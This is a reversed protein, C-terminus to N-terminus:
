TLHALMKRLPEPVLQYNPACLYIQGPELAIKRDIRLGLAPDIVHEPLVAIGLGAAVLKQIALLSSVKIFRKPQRKSLRSLYSTRESSIWPYEHLKKHDVPFSSILRYKEEFLKRSSVQENDIAAATLGLDLEGKMMAVRIAEDNMVHLRLNPLTEPALELLKKLLWSELVGQIAGTRLEPVASKFDSACWDDFAKAQTFLRHGAPTLMVAQKSRVFLQTGLSEEFLKIQRSVAPQAIKLSRAAKTFSLTEAVAVFAKLYRFDM